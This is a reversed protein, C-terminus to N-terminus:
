FLKARLLAAIKKATVASVFGVLIGGLIDSPYHVGVYIRSIGVWITLFILLTAWKSKLFIYPFTLASMISAHRSPFSADAQHTILPSINSDIFPRPEVYFLHILKIIIVVLPLSLLALILSKREILGGRFAIIFILILALYIVYEAGLIMLFDLFNNKNSLGFILYFLSLNDLIM